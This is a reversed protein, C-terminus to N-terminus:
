FFADISFIKRALYSPCFSTPVDRSQQVVTFSAQFAMGTKSTPTSNRKPTCDTSEGSCSTNDRATM